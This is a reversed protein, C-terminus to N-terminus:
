ISSQTASIIIMVAFLLGLAIVPLLVGILSRILSLGHVYKGGLGLLFVNYAFVILMLVIGYIAYQMYEMIEAMDPTAQMFQEMPPSPIILIIIIGIIGLIVSVISTYAVIRVTGEYTGSGSMIKFCIFLIGAGIFLSIINFIPATVLNFLAMGYSMSVMFGPMVESEALTRLNILNGATTLIAAIVYNIVAFILPDRYGGSVPMNRFFDNPHKVIDKWTNIFNNEM